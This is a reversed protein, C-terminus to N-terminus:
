DTDSLSLNHDVKHITKFRRHLAKLEEPASSHFLQDITFDSTVILRDHLLPTAGETTEGLCLWSDAWRKLAHTLEPTTEALDDLLVSAQGTYGDWLNDKSKLYLDPFSANTKGSGLPRHVWLGRPGM